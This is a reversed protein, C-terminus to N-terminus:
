EISESIFMLQKQIWSKKFESVRACMKQMEQLISIDENDSITKNLALLVHQFVNITIIQGEGCDLSEGTYFQQCLKSECRVVCLLSGTYKERGEERERRRETLRPRYDPTIFQSLLPSASKRIVGQPLSSLLSAPSSM